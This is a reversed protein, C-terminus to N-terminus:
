RQMAVRWNTTVTLLQPTTQQQPLNILFKSGDRAAAYQRGPAAGRGLLSVGFLLRPSGFKFGSSLDIPVSWLAQDTLFYMEKGDRRWVPKFGSDPSIQFIAGTPPYPQVYVNSRQGETSSYAVWKGDPSFTGDIEIAGTETFASVASTAIDMTWLDTPGLSARARQFLLRTGDSSVDNVFLSARFPANDPTLLVREKTADAIAKGVLAWAGARQGVFFVEQDDASWAPSDDDRADFSIRTQTNATTDIVWIDRNGSQLDIRSFAARRGDSALAMNQILGPEGVTGVSTGSRDYWVLQSAIRREGRGHVLLGDTSASVSAYRSGETAIGDLLPFADGLFARAVPDFPRALLTSNAPDAYLLHGSAFRVASEAHMLIQTDTSDLVGIKIQAPKAAPCCTGVTASFLFHKGDPLFSPFRHNSEGYESDLVSADQPAGGSANVRQLPGITTAAFLIVNDNNWTGGRGQPADCIISSPGGDIRIRRLKGGAFFAVSRSDPSWFPFSAGDTTALVRAEVAGLPRVWLQVNKASNAVFVITSGDPSVAFQPAVGTGGGGMTNFTADLPPAIAFQVPLIPQRARRWEALWAGTGAAVVAIAAALVWWRWGPRGRSAPAAAAPMPQTADDLELRADGIHQLRLRRDKQLCRSLVRRIAIPTDAPLKDIPPDSKMIAALTETVDDGAFARVGTLMEFLVCGFAWIDTRLDIARGRAQEPSMYAATGLIMGAHTMQAPSTITPSNALDGPGQGGIGSGQEFAKALGFDLVKVTGDARVKINTPKLDRHIIGADHAAELADAIQRAIPLADDLAIPGRAIIRSLDEGDVLEMVLAHSEGADELGHLQAIHPHNLAALTRAERAFRATRDPDGALEAPLVKIAVDRDLRTDRARYVEGMGGAGIPGVIEYSGIRTGAAIAM